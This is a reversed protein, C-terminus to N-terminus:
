NLTVSFKAINWSAESSRYLKAGLSQLFGFILGTGLGQNTLHEPFPKGDDKYICLLSNDKKQICINVHGTTSIFGHKASNTVLECLIFAIKAAYEQGINTSAVAVQLTVGKDSLQLTDQLDQLLMQLYSELNIQGETGAYLSEDLSSSAYLMNRISDIAPFGAEELLDLIRTYDNRKRHYMDRNLLQLEHNLKSIIRRKRRNQILFYVLILTIIAVGILIITQVTRRNREITVLQDSIQRQFNLDAKETAAVEILTALRGKEFIRNELQSWRKLYKLAQQAQGLSEHFRWRVSLNELLQDQNILALTDFNLYYRVKDWEKRKLYLKALNNTTILLSPRNGINQKLTESRHLYHAASDLQGLQLYTEGLNNLPAALLFQNNLLLQINLSKLFFQKASDLRDLGVMDNGINNLVRGIRSSDQAITWYSFAKLHYDLAENFRRQKNLLNGIAYNISAKEDGDQHKNALELAHRYIRIAKFYHGRKKELIGLNKLRAILRNEDLLSDLHMAHRYYNEASDYNGQYYFYLGINSITNAMQRVSDLDQYYHYAVQMKSVAQDYAGNKAAHKGTAYLSDALKLEKSKSSVLPREEQCAILFITILISALGNGLFFLKQYQNRTHYFVRLKKIVDYLM